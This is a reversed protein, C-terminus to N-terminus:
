RGERIKKLDIKKVDKGQVWELATVAAQVNNVEAVTRRPNESALYLKMRKIEQDIEEPSKM